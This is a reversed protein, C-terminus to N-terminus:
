NAHEVTTPAHSIVEVTYCTIMHKGLDKSRGPKWQLRGSPIFVRDGPELSVALAEAHKGVVRVDVFTPHLQEDIGQEWIGISFECYPKGNATYFLGPGHQGITGSVTVHNVDSM